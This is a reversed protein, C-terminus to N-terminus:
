SGIREKYSKPIRIPVHQDPVREHRVAGRVVARTLRPLRLVQVHAFKLGAAVRIMDGVAMQATANSSPVPRAPSSSRHDFAAPSLSGPPSHRAEDRRVWWQTVSGILRHTKDKTCSSAVMTQM